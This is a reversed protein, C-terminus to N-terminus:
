RTCTKLDTIKYKKLCDTIKYKAQHKMDQLKNLQSISKRMYPLKFLCISEANAQKHSIAIRLTTNSKAKKEGEMNLTEQFRKLVAKKISEIAKRITQNTKKELKNAYRM